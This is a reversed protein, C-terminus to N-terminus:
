VTMLLSTESVIWSAISYTKATFLASIKSARETSNRKKKMNNRKVISMRLIFYRRFINLKSNTSSNLYELDYLNRLNSSNQDAWDFFFLWTLIKSRLLTSERRHFFFVAYIINSCFIIIINQNLDWIFEFENKVREWITKLLNLNSWKYM